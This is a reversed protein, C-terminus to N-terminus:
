NGETETVKLMYYEAQNESGDLLQNEHSFLQRLLLSSM